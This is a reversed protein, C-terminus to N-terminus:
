EGLFKARRKECFAKLGETADKTEFLSLFEDEEQELGNAKAPQWLREISRKASSVALPASSKLLSVINQIKRNLEAPEVVQTVLAARLAEEAGITDGTLILYKAMAVGARQALRQTGGFGPILGM